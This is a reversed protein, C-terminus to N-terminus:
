LLSFKAGCSSAQQRPNQVGGGLSDLCHSMMQVWGTTMVRCFYNLNGIDNLTLILSRQVVQHSGAKLSIFCKKDYVELYGTSCLLLLYKVRPQYLPVGAPRHNGDYFTIVRIHVHSQDCSSYTWLLEQKASPLLCVSQSCRSTQGSPPM